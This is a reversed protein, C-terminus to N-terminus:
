NHNRISYGALKQLPNPREGRPYIGIRAKFGDLNVTAGDYNLGPELGMFQMPVGCHTCVISIEAMFRGKNKIRAVSVTAKFDEHKCAM